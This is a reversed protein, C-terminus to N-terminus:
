PSFTYSAVTGCARCTYTAENWSPKALIASRGCRKCRAPVLRFLRGLATYFVMGLASGALLAVAIWPNGKNKESYPGCGYELVLLTVIAAVLIQATRM